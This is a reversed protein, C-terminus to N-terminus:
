AQQFRTFGLLELWHPHREGTMLKTPSKGVREECESRMFQRHNLFLRLLNLVFAGTAEAPLLLETFSFKPPVFDVLSKQAVDGLLSECASLDVNPAQQKM